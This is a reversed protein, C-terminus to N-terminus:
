TAIAWTRHRGATLERGSRDRFVPKGRDIHVALHNAHIARHHHRCLLVLNNIDTSGGDSWHQVHHADCHSPPRDCGPVACGRDRAHLAQRQMTTAYRVARGMELVAGAESFLIRAFRAGCAWRDLVTPPVITGDSLESVSREHLRGTALTEADVHVFFLPERTATVGDAGATAGVGVLHALAEARRNGSTRAQAARDDAAMDAHLLRDALENIAALLPVGVALGFDGNLKVRSGVISASLTDDDRDAPATGDQDALVMWQDVLKSTEDVTMGQAYGVLQAEFEGFRERCRPNAVARAFVRVHGTSISGDAYAAAVIPMSSTYPNRGRRPSRYTSSSSFPSVRVVQSTM